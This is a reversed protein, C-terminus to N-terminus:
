PSCLKEKRIVSLFSGFSLLSPGVGLSSMFLLTMVLSTSFNSRHLIQCLIISQCLNREGVPGTFCGIGGGNTLIYFFSMFAFLSLAQTENPPNYQAMSLLLVTSFANLMWKTQHPIMCFALIYNIFNIQHTHYTRPDLDRLRM